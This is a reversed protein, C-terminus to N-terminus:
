GWLDPTRKGTVEESHELHEATLLPLVTLLPLPSREHNPRGCAIFFAAPFAALYLPRVRRLHQIALPVVRKLCDDTGHIGNVFQWFFSPDWGRETRRM